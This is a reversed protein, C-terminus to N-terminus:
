TTVEEDDVYKESREDDGGFVYRALRSVTQHFSTVM